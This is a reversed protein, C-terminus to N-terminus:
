RQNFRRIRTIQSVDQGSPQVTPPVVLFETTATVGAATAVLQRRGLRDRTMVLVQVRFTGDAGAVALFKGIGPSWVLDVPGPAFGAGTAIAVFGPPGLPPTVTLTAGATIPPITTSTTTTTRRPPLTVTVTPPITPPETTPPETTTTAPPCKAWTARALNYRQADTAEGPHPRDSPTVTFVASFVGRGDVPIRIREQYEAGSVDYYIYGASGNGFPPFHRGTMTLRTTAGPSFCPPNYELSPPQCPVEMFASVPAASGGTARFEYVGPQASNFVPSAAWRGSAPKTDVFGLSTGNPAYQTVRVAAQNSAGGIGLRFNDGPNACGNPHPTIFTDITLVPPPPAQGTAPVALAAVTLFAVVSALLAKRM